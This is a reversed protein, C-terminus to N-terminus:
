WPLQNLGNWSELLAVEQDTMWPVHNRLRRVIDARWPEPVEDQLARPYYRENWSTSEVTVDMRKALQELLTGDLDDRRAVVYELCNQMHLPPTGELDKAAPEGPQLRERLRPHIGRGELTAALLEKRACKACALCPRGAAGRLCSQALDALESRAAVTLTGVETLGTVPRCVALGVTELLRTWPGAGGGTYRRGGHLYASELVTGFAIGGLRLHDALFVAGLALAPWTPYQPWPLCLYELDSETIFVNRGRDGAQRVLRAIQDARVHTARNPVRPHTVRQLHLYPTAPDLLEATAISDVGSSYSLGLVGEGTRAPLADDVPGGDLKFFEALGEALTPSIPRDFSIRTRTWPRVILLAALALLDPHPEAAAVPLRVTCTNTVLTIPAGGQGSGQLNEDEDLRLRLRWVTAATAAGGSEWWVRM